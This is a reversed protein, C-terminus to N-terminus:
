IRQILEALCGSVRLLRILFAQSMSADPLRRTHQKGPIFQSLFFWAVAPPVHSGNGFEFFRKEGPDVFYFGRLNPSAARSINPGRSPSDRPLKANAQRYATPKYKLGSM